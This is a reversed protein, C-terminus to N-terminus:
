TTAGERTRNLRKYMKRNAKYFGRFEDFLEDYLARNAADPEHVETTNV